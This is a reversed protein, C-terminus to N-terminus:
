GDDDAMSALVAISEASVWGDSLRPPFIGVFARETEDLGNPEPPHLRGTSV